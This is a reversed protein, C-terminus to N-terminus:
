PQNSDPSSTVNLVLKEMSGDSANEKTVDVSAPALRIKDIRYTIPGQTVM